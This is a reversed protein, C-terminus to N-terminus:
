LPDINQYAELHVIPRWDPGPPTKQLSICRTLFIQSTTDNPFMSILGEFIHQAQEWNQAIYAEFGQTFQESLHITDSPTNGKEGLLEYLLIFERKGKVTVVDLPRFYFQDSTKEYTDHSVIIKTGYVDNAGELRSTLNVSDGVLTYNMRETSGMNGILTEGTHLGIRTPFAIKGDDTWRKNLQTVIEQCHLASRCAHHAHDPRPLPAGWFAMIGDGVYKDVTGHHAMITTAMEGLYDSLQLMLEEPVMGETISTFGVIDTFMITLERKHGGLKAGEGTQILQRVLEAPVYKKFARLSTRMASISAGLQQVEHIPSDIELNSDLDFAKIKETEATLQVIPRSITRSIFIASFIALSLIGLSILLSIQNTRNIAGTFDSEPVVIGIKWDTGIVGPFPTFSAIYREDGSEFIFRTEDAQQHQTYAATVSDVHLENLQLPRFSEGDPMALEVGPYAVIEANGNIIFAVGNDGIRQQQLFNSLEDLAVDIGIVSTLNGNNDFIPYAATIGPKQDTFFIYISTWFQSKTEKAGEYWPRLRPDYTFDTLLEVSEINGNPDRYTWTRTPIDLSRDIIQTDISGDVDRKTFLFDGQENGIFFGSLQPYLNLVEKGYNELDADDVLSFNAANPIQASTQAMLSAPALYNTTREIVNNTVQRILDNSLQLVATTNQRYTYSIIVLVTIILLTAFAILIDVQLSRRFQTFIGNNLRKM